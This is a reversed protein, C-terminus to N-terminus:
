VSRVLFASFTSFFQFHKNPYKFERWQVVVTSHSSFLSLIVCKRRVMITRDRPFPVHYIKTTKNHPDMFERVKVYHDRSGTFVLSEKNSEKLLVTMVPGAHGGLKGTM